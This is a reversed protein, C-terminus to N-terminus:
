PAEGRFAAAMDEPLPADFDEAIRIRGKLGGPRRSAAAPALPMLRAVPRGAKAIIIEEGAAAREVLQSLHTKAEYLNIARSM